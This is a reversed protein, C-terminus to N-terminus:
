GRSLVDFTMTGDASRTAHACDRDRFASPTCSRMAGDDLPLEYLQWSGDRNSHVLLVDGGPDTFPGHTQGRDDAAFPTVAGTELDIAHIQHRDLSPYGICYLTRGDLSWWPRYGIIGTNRLTGTAPDAIWIAFGGDRTSVFAVRRGQPDVAPRQDQADPATIERVDSGDPRMSCLALQVHQAPLGTAHEAFIDEVRESADPEVAFVIREGDPTWVGHRAGLPGVAACTGARTDALFLRPPGSAGGWFVARSGDPSIHAQMYAGDGPSLRIVDGDPACRYVDYSVKM